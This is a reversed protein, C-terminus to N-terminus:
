SENSPLPKVNRSRSLVLCTRALRASITSAIARITFPFSVHSSAALRSGAKSPLSSYPYAGNKAAPVHACTRVVTRNYCYLRSHCVSRKSDAQSGLCGVVNDEAARCKSFNLCLACWHGWLSGPLNITTDRAWIIIRSDHCPPM